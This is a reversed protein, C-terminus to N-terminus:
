DRTGPCDRASRVFRAHAAWRDLKAVPFLRYRRGSARLLRYPVSPKRPPRDM